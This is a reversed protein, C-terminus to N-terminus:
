LAQLSLPPHVRIGEESHGRCSIFGKVGPKAGPEDHAGRDEAIMTGATLVAIDEGRRQIKGFRVMDAQAPLRFGAVCPSVDSWTAWILLSSGPALPKM